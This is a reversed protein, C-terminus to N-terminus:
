SRRGRAPGLSALLDVAHIQRTRRGALLLWGAAAPVTVPAPEGGLAQVIEWAAFGLAALVAAVLAYGAARIAASDTVRWGEIWGAARARLSSSAVTDIRGRLGHEFKRWQAATPTGLRDETLVRFMPAIRVMEEAAESRLGSGAKADVRPRADGESEHTHQMEHTM